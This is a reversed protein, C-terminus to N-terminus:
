LVLQGGLEPRAPKVLYGALWGQGLPRRGDCFVTCADLHLFRFVLDPLLINLLHQSEREREVVIEVDETISSM